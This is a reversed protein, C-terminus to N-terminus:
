YPLVFNRVVSTYGVGNGNVNNETSSIATKIDNSGLGNNQELLRQRSALRDLSALRYSGGIM